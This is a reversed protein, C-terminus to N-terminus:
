NCTLRGSRVSPARTASRGAARSITTAPSARTDDPLTYLRRISEYLVEASGGPFDCRATGYDPMFLTDGVFLADGIQYTLCAPTHGPTHLAKVGFSGVELVDGDRLLVDFQRGDVPFDPGLNYLDRFRSQVRTIYHGIVTRAEYAQKFYMMGSLHDAHAHTDLVYVICLGHADIYRAVAACPEDSTRGSKPDFEMVADIVVGVKTTEEHIAYTLTSTQKDFFQQIKM